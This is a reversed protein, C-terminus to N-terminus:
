SSFRKGGGRKRKGPVHARIAARAREEEQRKGVLARAEIGPAKRGKERKKKEKRSREAGGGPGRWM